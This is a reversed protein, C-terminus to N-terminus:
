NGSFFNKVKGFGSKIKKGVAKMGVGVGADFKTLFTIRPKQLDGGVMLDAVVMGRSDKMSDIKYDAVFEFNKHKKLDVRLGSVSAHIPIKLKDRDCTAKASFYAAGGRVYVPLASEYYAAYPALPLAEVKIDAQFSTKTSLFDGEGKAEIRGSGGVIFKAEFKVPLPADPTAERFREAHFQIKSLKIVTGMRGDRFELEGDKVTIADVDYPALPWEGSERNMLPIRGSLEWAGSRTTAFKIRPNELTLEVPQNKEFIDRLNRLRVAMVPIEGIKEQKRDHHYVSVQSFTVTGSRIDLDVDAFEVHTQLAAEAKQHALRTIYSDSYVLAAVVGLAFIGLVSLLVIRKISLKV